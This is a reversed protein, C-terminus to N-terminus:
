TLIIDPNVPKRMRISTPRDYGEHRDEGSRVFGLRGFAQHNETLEIRSQLELFPLQELAAIQEAVDILRRALGLGRAADAVAVKGVYLCDPRQDLFACGVIERGKLAILCTETEAKSKLGNLDLRNMSSPPDIRAAMYAFSTRLLDLVEAWRDFGADAKEILIAV